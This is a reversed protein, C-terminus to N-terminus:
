TVPLTQDLTQDHSLFHEGQWALEVKKLVEELRQTPHASLPLPLDLPSVGQSTGSGKNIHPAHCAPLVRKAANCKKLHKPLLDQFVTHSNDLPCVVRKRAMAAAHQIGYWM